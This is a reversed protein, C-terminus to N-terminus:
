LAMAMKPQALGHIGLFDQSDHTTFLQSYKRSLIAQHSLKVLPGMATDRQMWMTNSRKPDTSKTQFFDNEVTLQVQIRFILHAHVHIKYM